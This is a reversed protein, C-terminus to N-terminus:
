GDTSGYDLGYALGYGSPPRIDFYRRAGFVSTYGDRVSLFEIYGELGPPLLAATITHSTGTLGTITDHENGLDDLIRLTVTQGVEMAASADDWRLAVQDETTRNRNAWTAVFETPYPAVRDVVGGFGQGDLQCNAPRFPAFPRDTFTVALPVADDFELVGLSTKPLFYYTTEEGSVREKPDVTSATEPYLWLRVGRPWELPVTDWMGRAVTWRKTDENYSDLMIIESTKEQFGLMLFTGSEATGRVIAEIQNKSLTSSSEQILDEMLLSSYTPLIQSTKGVKTVGNPKVYETHVEIASPKDGDEDAFLAAVVSPADNDIDDIDAGGRILSPLPATFSAQADLQTPPQEVNVWRTTQPAGYKAKEIAFIDETVDLTIERDGPKGYDVSMVRVVIQSVLDEEWSFKRVDGPRANWESRNVKIQCSFLPYGVARVDRNAVYQALFPNRIGYYERTESIVGGQIGINGMDQASVTTSKETNPDTYSVVIENITEGWLRRKRNFSQCNSEDLVALGATAYDDRLLKFTWLGTAPDQYLFAQVHDLIEAIFNEISDQAFYGMSLGFRENYLTAAAADFSDSDILAPDEGMGWEPDTLCDYVMRAPNADPLPGLLDDGSCHQVGYSYYGVRFLNSTAETTAGVAITFAARFQIYRTGAPLMTLPLLHSHTSGLTPGSAVSGINVDFWADPKVAHFVMNCSTVSTGSPLAPISQYTVGAWGADAWIHGGDIEEETFGLAILDLVIGLKTPVATVLWMPNQVVPRFTDNPPAVDTDVPPDPDPPPPDGVTVDISGDGFSGITYGANPNDYLWEHHYRGSEAPTQFTTGAGLVVTGNCRIYRSGVPATVVALGTTVRAMSPATWDPDEKIARGPSAILDVSVLSEEGLVPAVQGPADWSEPNASYFRIASTLTSEGVSYTEYSMLTVGWTTTIKAQGTDIQSQSFGLEYLDIKGGDVLGLPFTGDVAPDVEPPTGGVTQDVSALGVLNGDDDIGAPPWLAAYPDSYGDRPLRTVSAKVPPLYPNNATWKWGSAIGSSATSRAGTILFYLLQALLGTLGGNAEEVEAEIADANKQGRFFMHALGRYGPSTDPRLGWRASLEWSSLQEPAGTYIECVGNVGGEADDGGFLEPLDVYVDTRSYYLGCFISRDKIWVKNFHDVTGMCFGYDISLHYDFVTRTQGGGGKGM